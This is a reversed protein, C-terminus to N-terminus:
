YRVRYDKKFVVAVTANAPLVFERGDPRNGSNKDNGQSGMLLALPLFPATLIAIVILDTKTHDSSRRDPVSYDPKPTVFWVSVKGTTHDDFAIRDLEWEVKGNRGNPGARRV